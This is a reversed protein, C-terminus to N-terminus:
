SVVQHLAGAGGPVTKSEFGAKFLVRVLLRRLGEEDDIILIRRASM